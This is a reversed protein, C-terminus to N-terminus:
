NDVALIFVRRKEANSRVTDIDIPAKIARALEILVDAKDYEGHALHIEIWQELMDTTITNYKRKAAM